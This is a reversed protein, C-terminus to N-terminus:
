RRSAEAIKDEDDFTFIETNRGRASSRSTRALAPGPAEELLAQAIVEEEGGRRVRLEVTFAVELTATETCPETKPDM